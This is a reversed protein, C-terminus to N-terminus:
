EFYDDWCGMAFNIGFIGDYPIYELSSVSPLIFIIFNNYIINLIFDKVKACIFQKFRITNVKAKKIKCGM